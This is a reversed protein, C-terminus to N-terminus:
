FHNDIFVTDSRSNTDVEMKRGNLDIVAPAQDATKKRTNVMDPITNFATDRLLASYQGSTQDLEQQMNAIDPPM